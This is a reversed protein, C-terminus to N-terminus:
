PGVGQLVAQGSVNEALVLAGRLLHALGQLRAHDADVDERGHQGVRRGSTDLRAAVAVFAAAGPEVGVQLVLQTVL